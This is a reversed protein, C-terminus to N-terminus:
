KCFGLSEIYLNWEVYKNSLTCSATSRVVDTLKEVNKKPENM